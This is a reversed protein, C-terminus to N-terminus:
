KLLEAAEEASIKIAFHPQSGHAEKLLVWDGTFLKEVHQRANTYTDRGANWEAESAPITIKVSYCGEVDYLLEGTTEHVYVFENM